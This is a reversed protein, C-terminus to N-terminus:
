SLLETPNIVVMPKQKNRAYGVCNGTGGSTGDWIAVVSDAHDVMWINRDQMVKATTYEGNYVYVVGDEITEGDSALTRALDADAFGCMKKYTLKSEAPWKIDQNRCPAAIMFRLGMRHAERAADTDVGLAGGSIVVVEHTESYKAVARALANNIAKTVAVRMPTKANYGGIKNPRHGTFAVKYLPKNMASEEENRPDPGEGIWLMEQTVKTGWCKTCHSWHNVIEWQLGVNKGGVASPETMEHDCGEKFPKYM